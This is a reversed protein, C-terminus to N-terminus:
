EGKQTEQPWPATADTATATAATASTGKAMASTSNAIATTATGMPTATATGGGVIKNGSHHSHGGGHATRQVTAKM